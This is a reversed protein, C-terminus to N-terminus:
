FYEFINYFMKWVCVRSAFFRCEFDFYPVDQSGFLQSRCDFLCVAVAGSRKAGSREARASRARAGSPRKAGECTLRGSAARFNGTLLHPPPEGGGGRGRPRTASRAGRRAIAQATTRGGVARIYGKFRSTSPTGRFGWGRM